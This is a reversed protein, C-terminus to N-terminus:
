LRQWNILDASVRRCVGCKFPRHERDRFHEDCVLASDGCCPTFGVWVATNECERLRTNFVTLVLCCKPAFEDLTSETTDPRELTQTSDM